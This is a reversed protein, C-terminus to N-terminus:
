VLTEISIEGWGEWCISFFFVLLLTWPLGLPPARRGAVQTAPVSKTGVWFGEARSLFIRKVRYSFVISVPVVLMWNWHRLLDTWYPVALQSMPQCTIDSYTFSSLRGDEDWSWSSSRRAIMGNSIQSFEHNFSKQLPPLSYCISCYKEKEKKVAKLRMISTIPGERFQM